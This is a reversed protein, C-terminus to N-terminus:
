ALAILARGAADKHDQQWPPGLAERQQDIWAAHRHRANRPILMVPIDLAEAAMVLADHYIMSDARSLLHHSAHVEAVTAPSAPLPPERLALVHFPHETRLQSLARHACALASARVRKILAEAEAMNMELTEHHYPQNPLGPDLLEIRRRDLIKPADTVTVAVVWGNHPAIGVATNKM